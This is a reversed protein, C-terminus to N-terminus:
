VVNQHINFIYKDKWKVGEKRKGGVGNKWGGERGGESWEEGAEKKGEGGGRASIHLNFRVRSSSM